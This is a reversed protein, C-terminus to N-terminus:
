REAVEFERRRLASLSYRLNFWLVGLAVVGTILGISARASLSRLFVREYGVEQYWLWDTYFEAMGPIATALRVLVVLLPLRSRPM